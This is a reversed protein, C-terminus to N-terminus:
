SRAETIDQLNQPALGDAPSTFTHRCSGHGGSLRMTFGAAEPRAQRTYDGTSAINAPSRGSAPPCTSSRRVSACPSRWAIPFSWWGSRHVPNRPSSPAGTVRSPPCAVKSRSAISRRSIVAGWTRWIVAGATRAWAAGASAFRRTLRSTSIPRDRRKADTSPLPSPAFEDIFVLKRDSRNEWGTSEFALSM